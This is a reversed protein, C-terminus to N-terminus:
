LSIIARETDEEKDEGCLSSSTIQIERVPIFLRQHPRALSMSDDDDDRQRQVRSSSFCRISLFLSLSLSLSLSFTIRVKKIHAHIIHAHALELTNTDRFIARQATHACAVLLAKRLSSFVKLKNRFPLSQRSIM